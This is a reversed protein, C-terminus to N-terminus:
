RFRLFRDLLCLGRASVRTLVANGGDEVSGDERTILAFVNGPRGDVGGHRWVPSTPSDRRQRRLLVYVAGGSVGGASDPELFSAWLLSM